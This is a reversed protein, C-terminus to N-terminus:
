RQCSDAPTTQASGLQLCTSAVHPQHIHNLCGNSCKGECGMPLDLDELINWRCTRESLGCPSWWLSRKWELYSRSTFRHKTSPMKSEPYNYWVRSSRAKSFYGLHIESGAALCSLRYQDTRTLSMKCDSSPRLQHFHCDLDPRSYKTPTLASGDDLNQWCDETTVRQDLKSQELVPSNESLNSRDEAISSSSQSWLKRKAFHCLCWITTQSMSKPLWSQFYVRRKRLETKLHARSYLSVFIKM